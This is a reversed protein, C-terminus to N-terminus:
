HPRSSVKVLRRMRRAQEAAEIEALARLRVRNLAARRAEHQFLRALRFLVVGAAGLLIGNVLPNSGIFDLTAGIFAALHFTPMLTEPSTTLAAVTLPLSTIELDDRQGSLLIALVPWPM